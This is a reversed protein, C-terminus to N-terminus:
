IPDVVSSDQIHKLPNGKIWYGKAVVQSHGKRRINNAVRKCIRVSCRVVVFKLYRDPGGYTRWIHWNIYM